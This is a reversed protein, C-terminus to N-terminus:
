TVATSRRPFSLGADSTTDQIRGIGMMTIVGDITPTVGVLSRVGSMVPAASAPAVTKIKMSPLLVGSPEVTASLLPAYENEGGDSRVGPRRVNLARAVTDPAFVPDDPTDDSNDMLMSVVAGVNDLTRRCTGEESVVPSSASVNRRVNESGTLPNSLPSKTTVPDVAVTDRM